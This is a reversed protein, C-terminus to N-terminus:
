RCNVLFFNIFLFFFNCRDTLEFLKMKCCNGRVIAHAKNEIIKFCNGEDIEFGYYLTIALLHSLCAM